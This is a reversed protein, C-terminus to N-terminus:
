KYFLKVEKAVDKTIDPYFSIQNGFAIPIILYKLTDIARTYEEKNSKNTKLYELQKILRITKNKAGDWLKTVNELTVSPMKEKMCEFVEEKRTNEAGPGGYQNKLYYRKILLRDEENFKGNVMVDFPLINNMLMSTILEAYDYLTSTPSIIQYSKLPIDSIDKADGFDTFYLKYNNDHKIYLINKLHLDGHVIGLSHLEKVMILIQNYLAVIKKTDNQEHLKKLVNLIIGDMKEMIIMGYKAGFRLGKDTCAISDIIM